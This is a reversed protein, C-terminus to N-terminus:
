KYILIEETKGRSLTTGSFSKLLSYSSITYPPSSFNQRYFPCDHNCLFIFGPQNHCWAVLSQHDQETFGQNSYTYADVARNITFYPPDLFILDNDKTKVETFNKVSIHVSKKQLIESLTFIEQNDLFFERNGWASNFDGKKNYRVLGNFATRLLFMFLAAKYVDLFGHSNFCSRIKTYTTKKCSAYEKKLDYLLDFLEQPHNQVALWWNILHENIDSLYYHRNTSQPITDIYHLFVSGSGLFPEYYDQHDSPFLSVISQGIRRKSGVWKLPSKM